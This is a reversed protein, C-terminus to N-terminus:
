LEAFQKLLEVKSLLASQYIEKATQDNPNSTISELSQEVSQNVATLYKEYARAVEASWRPQRSPIQRELQEIRREVIATEIHPKHMVLINIPQLSVRDAGADGWPRPANDTVSATDPPPQHRDTAWRYIALSGVAVLLTAALLFAPRFSTMRNRAASGRILAAPVVQSPRAGEASIAMELRHWVRGPPELEPMQRSARFIALLDQYIVNCHPCQKLHVTVAEHAQRSLALDIYDSLRDQYLECSM